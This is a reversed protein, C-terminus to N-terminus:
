LAGRIIIEENFIDKLFKYEIKFKEIVGEITSDKSWFLNNEKCYAVWQNGHDKEIIISLKM